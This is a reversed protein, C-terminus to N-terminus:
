LDLTRKGTPHQLEEKILNSLNRCEEELQKEIARFTPEDQKVVKIQIAHGPLLQNGRIIPPEVNMNEIGDPHTLFHQTALGSQRIIEKEEETLLVVLEVAKRTPHPKGGSTFFKAVLEAKREITVKM